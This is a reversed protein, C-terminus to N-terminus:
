MNQVLNKSMILYKNYTSCVFFVFHFYFDCFHM